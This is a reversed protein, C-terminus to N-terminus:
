EEEEVLSLAACRACTAVQPSNHVYRKGEPYFCSSLKLAENKTEILARLESITNNRVDITAICRAVDEITAFFISIGLSTRFHKEMTKSLPEGIM